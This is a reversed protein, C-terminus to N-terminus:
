VLGPAARVLKYDPTWAWGCDEHLDTSEHFMLARKGPEMANIEHFIQEAEALSGPRLKVTFEDDGMIGRSYEGLEPMRTTDHLVMPMPESGDDFIVKFAIDLGGEDNAVETYNRVTGWGPRPRWGISAKNSVRKADQVSQESVTGPVHEALRPPHLMYLRTGARSELEAALEPLPGKAQGREIRWWDKKKEGTIFLVDVKRASAERLVEDWILYDGEANIKKRADMFGPPRKDEIRRNAEQKANTIESAPLPFGVKGDLITALETLVPDKLTDEADKLSDDHSLQRIRKEVQASANDIIRLVSDRDAEPLNVRNAWTAIRERYQQIRGQLDNITESLSTAREDLVDPRREFFEQMVQHPIWLHNGLSAYLNLFDKRTSDHYRYLDLLANTDLVVLGDKLVSKYEDAPVTRYTHLGGDFIGGHRRNLIPDTSHDAM